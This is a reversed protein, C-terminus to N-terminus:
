LCLDWLHLLVQIGPRMAQAENFSPKSRRCSAPPGRIGPRMAQAENFSGAAGPPASWM